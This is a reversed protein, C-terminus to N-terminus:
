APRGPVDPEFFLPVDGGSVGAAEVWAELGDALTRCQEATLRRLAAVLSTQLTPPADALVAAGAPTLAIETRRGDEASPNRTVLQREALRSVVASVSSQHTRTRAALENLSAVPQQALQQLVFLQAGSVGTDRQVATSSARLAHVLRRLANM